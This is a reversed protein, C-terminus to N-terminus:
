TGGGQKVALRVIRMDHCLYRVLQRLQGSPMPKIDVTGLTCLDMPLHELAAAIHNESTANISMDYTTLRDLWSEPGAAQPLHQQM